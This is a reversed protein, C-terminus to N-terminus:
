SAKTDKLAWWGGIMTLHPVLKSIVPCEAAVFEADGGTAVIIPNDLSESLKTCIKEVAGITGWYIASAISEETNQGLAKPVAAVQVEPLLHTQQHLARAQSRLGPGICGGLFAGDKSTVDYTIATGLSLVIVDRGPHTRAAWTSNMLRDQGVKEPAKTKNPISAILDQGLVHVPINFRTEAWDKFKHSWPENVSILLAEEVKSFSEDIWQTEMLDMPNVERYNAIFHTLVRAESILALHVRSNGIDIVLEM